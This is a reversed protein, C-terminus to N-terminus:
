GTGTAGTTGTTSSALCVDNYLQQLSQSSCHRNINKCIKVPNFVSNISIKGIENNVISKSYHCFKALVLLGASSRARRSSLSSAESRSRQDRQSVAVGALGDAGAAGAGAAGLSPVSKLRYLQAVSAPAM